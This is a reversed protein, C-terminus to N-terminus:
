ASTPCNVTKSIANDVFAQMAGQMRIHEEATVDASVVFTHRVHDPVTPIDQCSGRLNVEEVIAKIGTESLGADELAKQFFPSTFQLQLYQVQYNYYTKQAICLLTDFG